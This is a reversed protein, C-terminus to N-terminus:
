NGMDQKQLEKELYASGGLWVTLVSSLSLVVLFVLICIGLLSRKHRKMGAKLFIRKEM